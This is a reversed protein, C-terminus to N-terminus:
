HRFQVSQGVGIRSPLPSEPGLGAIRFAAARVYADLPTAWDDLVGKGELIAPYDRFFSEVYHKVPGEGRVVSTAVELYHCSDGPVLPLNGGCIWISRAFRTARPWRDGPFEQRAPRALTGGLARSGAVGIRDGSALARARAAVAPSDRGPAPSRLVHHAIADFVPAVWGYRLTWGRASPLRLQQWADGALLWHGTTGPTVRPNGSLLHLPERDSRRAGIM